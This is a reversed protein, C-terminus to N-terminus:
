SAFLTHTRDSLIGLHYSHITRMNCCVKIKGPPLFINLNIVKHYIVANLYQINYLETPCINVFSLQRWLTILLTIFDCFAQQWETQFTKSLFTFYPSYISDNKQQKIHFQGKLAFPLVLHKIIPLINSRFLSVTSPPQLRNCLLSNRLTVLHHLCPTTYHRHWAHIINPCKHASPFILKFHTEISIPPWYM